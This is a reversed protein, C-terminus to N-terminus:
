EESPSLFGEITAGCWYVWVSSLFLAASLVLHSMLQILELNYLYEALPTGLGMSRYHLVSFFIAPVYVLGAVAWIVLNLALARSALQVFAKRSM